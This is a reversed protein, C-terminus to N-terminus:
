KNLDMDNMKWNGDEKIFEFEVVYSMEEEYNILGFGVIVSGNDNEHTFRFEIEGLDDETLFAQEHPYTVNEFSLVNNNRDVETGKSMNEELFHYDENKQADFIDYALDIVEQHQSEAKEETGNEEGNQNANNNAQENTNTNDNTPLEVEKSEVEGEPIEEVEEEQDEAEPEEEVEKVEEETEEVQNDDLAQEDDPSTGSQTNCAALVFILLTLFITKRLM